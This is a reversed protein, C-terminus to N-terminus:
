FRRSVLFYRTIMHIFFLMSKMNSNIKNQNPENQKFNNARPKKQQKLVDKVEKKGIPSSIPTSIDEKKIEENEAALEWSTLFNQFNKKQKM